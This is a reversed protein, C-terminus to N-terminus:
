PSGRGDGEVGEEPGRRGIHYAGVLGALLLMSALEVGLAYRGFLAIGVSARRGGGGCTTPGGSALLSSLEVLLVGPLVGSRDLARRCGRCEQAVADVRNLMMMVFVFLVMIAGAYVIIRAGRRVARRAPFVRARRRSAVVILYVARADREGRSRSRRQWPPSSPPLMSPRIMAPWPLVARVDAPPAQHEAEGKDKGRIAIGAVRYLQLRSVQRQRQDLSGRERLGHEPGPVREDRFRASLQIAYTPCAGRVPRLLHLALLQDPLVRPRRGDEDETTQLAICTSPACWRACTAGSAASAATPIACCSSADGSARRSIRSRNRICFRVRRRFM